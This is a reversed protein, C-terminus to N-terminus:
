DYLYSDADDIDSIFDNTYKVMGDTINVLLDTYTNLTTVKEELVNTVLVDCIGENKLERIVAAYSAFINLLEESMDHIRSAGREFEEDAIILSM